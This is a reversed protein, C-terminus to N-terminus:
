GGFRGIHLRLQCSFLLLPIWVALDFAAGALTARVIQAVALVILLNAAWRVWIREVWWPKGKWIRQDHEVLRERAIDDLLGADKWDRKRAEVLRETAAKRDAENKRRYHDTPVTM